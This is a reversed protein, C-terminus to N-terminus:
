RRPELAHLLEDVTGAKTRFRPNHWDLRGRVAMTVCGDCIYIGNRMPARDDEFVSPVRSLEEDTYRRKVVEAGDAM